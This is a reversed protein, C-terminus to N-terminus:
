NWDFSRERPNRFDSRLGDRISDAARCRARSRCLGGDGACVLLNSSPICDGLIRGCAVSTTRRVPLAKANKMYM